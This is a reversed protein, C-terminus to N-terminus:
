ISRNDVAMTKPQSPQHERRKSLVPWILLGHAPTAALAQETVLRLLCNVAAQAM